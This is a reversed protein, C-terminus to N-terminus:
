SMIPVTCSCRIKSELYFFQWGWYNDDLGIELIFDRLALAREKATCSHVLTGFRKELSLPRNDIMLLRLDLDRRPIKLRFCEIFLHNWDEVAHGCECEPSHARRVRHLLSATYAVNRRRRHQSTDVARKLSRFQIKPDVKYLISQQSHEDFWTIRCTQYAINRLIERIDWAFSSCM